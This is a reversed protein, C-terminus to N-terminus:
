EFALTGEILAVQHHELHNGVGVPCSRDVHRQGYAGLVIHVEAIIEHLLSKGIADGREGCLSGTGLVEICLLGVVVYHILELETTDILLTDIEVLCNHAHTVGMTSEEGRQGHVEDRLSLGFFGLLYEVFTLFLQGIVVNRVVILATRYIQCAAIGVRLLGLLGLYEDVLQPQLGALIQNPIEGEVTCAERTGLVVAEDVEIDEFLHKVYLIRDTLFLCVLFFLM